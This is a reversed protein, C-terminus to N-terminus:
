MVYGSPSTFTTDVQHLPTAPYYSYNLQVNSNKVPKTDSISIEFEPELYYRNCQTVLTISIPTLIDSEITFTGSSQAEFKGYNNAWYSKIDVVNGDRNYFTAIVEAEVLYIYEHNNSLTGSVGGNLVESLGKVVLYPFNSAQTKKYSKVKVNISDVSYMNYSRVIFPAKGGAKIINRKAMTTLTDMVEGQQDYLIVEVVVERVNFLKTNKM